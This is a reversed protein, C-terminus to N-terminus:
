IREAAFPKANVDVSDLMFPQKLTFPGAYQFTNVPLTEASAWVGVSLALATLVKKKMDIM